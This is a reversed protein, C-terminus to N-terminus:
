VSPCVSPRFQSLMHASVAYISDRAFLFATERSDDTSESLRRDLELNNNNNNNNKHGLTFLVLPSFDFVLFM